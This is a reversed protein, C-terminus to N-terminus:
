TANVKTQKWFDFGIQFSIYMGSYVFKLVFAAFASVLTVEDIAAHASPDHQQHHNNPSM